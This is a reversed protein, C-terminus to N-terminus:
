AAIRQSVTNRKWINIDDPGFTAQTDANFVFDFLAREALQTIQVYNHLSQGADSAVSPDRWSAIHQGPGALFLGLKMMPSTWNVLLKHRETRAQVLREPTMRPSSGRM